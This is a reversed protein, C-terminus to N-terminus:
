VTQILIELKKREFDVLSKFGLLLIRRRGIESAIKRMKVKLHDTLETLPTFFGKLLYWVSVVLKRALAAVAINNGKRMKLAVAWRRTPGRGYKMISQAAQILPARM